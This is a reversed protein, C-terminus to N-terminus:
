GIKQWVVATAHVGLLTSKSPTWAGHCRAIGAEYIDSLSEVACAGPGAPLRVTWQWAGAAPLLLVALVLRVSRAILTPGNVTRKNVMKPVAGTAGIPALWSHSLVLSAGDDTCGTHFNWHALKLPEPFVLSPTFCVFISFFRNLFM